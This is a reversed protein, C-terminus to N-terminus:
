RVPLCGARTWARLAARSGRGFKGDIEGRYHGAMQLIVQFEAADIHGRTIAELRAKASTKARGLRCNATAIGIRSGRHDPDLSLAKRYDEIAARPNGMEENDVGRNHWAAVYDPDIEIARNHDALARVMDGLAAHANGRNSFAPAYEANRAIAANYDALATLYDGRAAYALARNNFAWAAGAGEADPKEIITTCATIAPETDSIRQCTAVDATVEVGGVSQPVASMFMVCVLVLRHLDKM